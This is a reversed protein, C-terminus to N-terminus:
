RSEYAQRAWAFLTDYERVRNVSGLIIMGVRREGFTFVAALNEKALPSTGTKGGLFNRDSVLPNINTIQKVSTDNTPQVMMTEVRTWSLIEPEKEAVYQLLKFVDGASSINTDTLGSGDYVTTGTMGIQSAKNNLLKSFAEKGGAYEEIASAADNSSTMLMIKLLDRAIYVEGSRLGGSEGETGVATESIPIKEMEGIDEVVAVATLLKTISAMPWPKYRNYSFFYFDDDLSQMVVAEATIEPDFVDWKRVLQPKKNENGTEEVGAVIESNATGVVEADSGLLPRISFVIAFGLVLITGLAVYIKM